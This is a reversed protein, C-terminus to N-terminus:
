CAGATKGDENAVTDRRGLAKTYGPGLDSKSLSSAVYVHPQTAGWTCSFDFGDVCTCQDVSSFVALKKRLQKREEDLSELDNIAEAVAAKTAASEQEVRERSQAEKQLLEQTHERELELQQKLQTRYPLRVLRNLSHSAVAFFGDGLLVVSCTRACREDDTRLLLAEAERLSRKLEDQNNRLKDAHSASVANRRSEKSLNQELQEIENQAQCLADHLQRVDTEIASQLDMNCQRLQNCEAISDELQNSLREIIGERQKVAGDLCKKATQLKEMKSKESHKCDHLEKNMRDADEQCHSLADKAQTLEKSATQLAQTLYREQEGRQDMDLKMNRQSKVRLALEQDAQVIMETM